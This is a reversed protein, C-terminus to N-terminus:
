FYNERLVSLGNVEPCRELTQTSFRTMQENPFGNCDNYLIGIIHVPFNELCESFMCLFSM